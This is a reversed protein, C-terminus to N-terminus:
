MTLTCEKIEDAMRNLAQKVRVFQKQSMGKSGAAYHRLNSPSLKAYKAVKTINLFDFHNFFSPFDFAWSIDLEPFDAEPYERKMAEYFAFCDKKAEEVTPGSGGLDFHKFAHDCSCVYGETGNKTITVNVKLAKMTTYDVGCIYAYGRICDFIKKIIGTNDRATRWWGDAPAGPRGAVSILYIVVKPAQCIISYM